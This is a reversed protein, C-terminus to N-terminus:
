YEISRFRFCSKSLESEAQGTSTGCARSGLSDDANRRLSSELQDISGRSVSPKQFAHDPHSARPGPAGADTPGDGACPADPGRGSALLSFSGKVCGHGSVIGGHRRCLQRLRSKRLDSRGAAKPQGKTIPGLEVKRPLTEQRVERAVALRAGSFIM